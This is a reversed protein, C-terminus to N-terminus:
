LIMHFIKAAYFIRQAGALNKLKSLKKKTTTDGLEANLRTWSNRGHSQWLKGNGIQTEFWTASCAIGLRARM